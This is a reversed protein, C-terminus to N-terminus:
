RGDHPSFSFFTLRSFVPLRFALDRIIKWLRSISSLNQIACTMLPGHLSPIRFGSCHALINPPGAQGATLRVRIRAAPLSPSPNLPVLLHRSTKAVIVEIGPGEQSPSLTSESGEIPVGVPTGPFSSSPIWVALRDKCSTWEGGCADFLYFVVATPPPPFNPPPVFPPIWVFFFPSTPFLPYAGTSHLFKREL